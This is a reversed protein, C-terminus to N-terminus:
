NGSPEAEKMNNNDVPVSASLNTKLVGIQSALSESEDPITVEVSDVPIKSFSFQVTQDDKGVLVLRLAYGGDKHTFSFAATAENKAVWDKWADSQKLLDDVQKDEDMEALAMKAASKEGLKQILENPSMEGAAAGADWISVYGDHISERNMELYEDYSALVKLLDDTKWESRLESGVGKPTQNAMLEWFLDYYTSYFYQQVSGLFHSLTQSDQEVGYEKLDIATVDSIFDREILDAYFNEGTPQNLGLTEVLKNGFLDFLPFTDTYLINESINGTMTAPTEMDGYQYSLNISGDGSEGMYNGDTHFRFDSETGSASIEATYAYDTLESQELMWDMLHANAIKPPAIVAAVALGACAVVAGCYLWQKKSIKSLKGKLAAFPSKKQENAM